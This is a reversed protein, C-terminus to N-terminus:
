EYARVVSVCDRVCVYIQVRRVCTGVFKPPLKRGAVSVKKQLQPTSRPNSFPWSHSLLGCDSCRALKISKIEKFFCFLFSIYLMYITSQYQSICLMASVNSDTQTLWRVKNPVANRTGTNTSVRLLTYPDNTWSKFRVVLVLTSSTRWIYFILFSTLFTNFMIIIKHFIIISAALM